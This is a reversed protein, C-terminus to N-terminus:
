GMRAAAGDAAVGELASHRAFAYEDFSIAGRRRLADLEWLRNGPSPQAPQAPTVALPGSAQPYGPAGSGTALERRQAAARTALIVAVIVFSNGGALLLLITLSVAVILGTDDM